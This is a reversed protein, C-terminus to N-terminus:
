DVNTKFLNERHFKLYPLHAGNLKRLKMNQNIGLADLNKETLERSVLLDGSDAFSILGRDFLADLTAILLIGNFPDLRERDDAAKWPKIHSAKLISPIDCGTVACGKWYKILTDRYTQQGVRASSVVSKTTTKFIAKAYKLSNGQAGVIGNRGFAKMVDLFAVLAAEGQFAFKWGAFQTSGDFRAWGGFKTFKANPTMSKQSQVGQIDSLLIKLDGLKSDIFVWRCIESNESFRTYIWLNEGVCWNWFHGLAKEGYYGQNKLTVHVGAYSNKTDRGSLHLKTLQKQAM